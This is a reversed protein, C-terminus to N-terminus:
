IEKSKSKIKWSPNLNCDLQLLLFYAYMDLIFLQVIDSGVGSIVYM